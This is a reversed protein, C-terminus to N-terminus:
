MMREGMEKETAEQLRRKKKKKSDLSHQLKSYERNLRHVTDTVAGLVGHNTSPGYGNRAHM